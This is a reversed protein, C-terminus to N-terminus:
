PVAIPYGAAKWGPFGERLYYIKQFGWGVAKACAKSARLCRPGMCYIVVELDKAVVQTLKAESFAKKLGLSVAGPIHSDKWRGVSRVDVFPVGQDFLIKAAVPDVTTTGAVEANM